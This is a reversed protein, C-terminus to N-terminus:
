EVGHEFKRHTFAAGFKVKAFISLADYLYNPKATFAGARTPREGEEFALRFLGPAGAVKVARLQTAPQAVDVKGAPDDPDAPLALVAFKAADADTGTPVGHADRATLTCLPDAGPAHGASMAAILGYESGTRPPLFFVCLAVTLM